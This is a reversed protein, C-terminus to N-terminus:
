GGTAPHLPFTRSGAGRWQTVEAGRMLRSARLTASVLAYLRDADSGYMYLYGDNGDLHLETEGLEGAQAREIQVRLAQELQRLRPLEREYFTFHVMVVPASSTSSATPAPSAALARSALLAISLLVAFERIRSMAPPPHVPHVTM